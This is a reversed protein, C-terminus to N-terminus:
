SGNKINSTQTFNILENLFESSNKYRNEIELSLSNLIISDLKDKIHHNYTSPSVPKKKRSMFIKKSVEDQSDLVDIDYSWPLVGTLMKYFVMGSSFVDSTPLYVGTFCEPAFFKVKGAVDSIKNLQNLNQSLGFDSLFAKLIDKEHCILINDPCIDRHIIKNSHAKDLGKLIDIQLKVATEADLSIKRKLLDSLTEGHVFGMTIFYYKKNNKIFDNVEFVRVINEHSLGSLVKAENIVTNIDSNQVYEDKFVKLVQIGFFKHKVSYVEGFAGEGIFLKVKYTNNITDSKNLLSM